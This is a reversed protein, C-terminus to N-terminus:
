LVGAKMNVKRLPASSEIEASSSGSSSGLSLYTDIQCMVDAETAGKIIRRDERVATNKVDVRGMYLPIAFIQDQFAILNYENYTRLVSPGPLLSRVVKRAGRSVRVTARMLKERMQRSREFEDIQRIAERQTRAKLIRPNSRVREEALNLPGLVQPAA